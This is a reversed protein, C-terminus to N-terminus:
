AMNNAAEEVKKVFIDALEEIKKMDDESKIEVKDCLKEIKVIISQKTPVNATGKASQRLQRVERLLDVISGSNSVKTTQLIVTNKVQKTEAKLANKKGQEAAMSLSKDHPYVRSGKPLDIIEAGRDHVMAPGGQWNKTGKYLMPITPINLKFEKGGMKPVWKPIKVRLKNIGALAGNILGIVANFPAKVLGSLAQFAGGFINKVGDWAKKWNGTFVGTVFSIVGGLMRKVGGFVKNVTNLMSTLYGIAAGIGGAVAIKLSAGLTQKINNLYPKSSNWANSIHKSFKGFGSKAKSAFENVDFGCAKLVSKSWTGFKKAAASVKDWNKILLVLGVAIGAIAAVVIGAPGAMLPFVKGIGGFAKSIGSAAKTGKSLGSIAKGLRGVMSVTSGVATVMKGFVMLAPGITALKIAINVIHEVQEDSLSNIKDAFKQMKGTFKEVMPAMKDGFSIAISEATSKLVTLRGKLNDNAVNYMKKAAGSSNDIGKALKNFDKDSSNVVALLGSMGTKGALMAAYQAKASETLGSFAARAEQMVQRFPKMKGSSDTMSLGLDRMAASSEKTPKAMRTFWSNLSTGAQSAKIGSNAMLGLAVATDEASYKLAGAAPAAYKFSEGLMGVNTNSNNATKALVDVFHNTDKATMGFATLADTVIDSTSALDEGTAGALYMIGEIGNMMDKTKWGAMAMYSFADSAESASFKTKAGMEKAKQALTEMDKGTAGSISQVKSMSQEFDAATNVAAAGLGLIPTTVGKTLLAGSSEIKKGTKQIQSGARMIEKSHRSMNKMANSMPATFKDVFRLTADIVKNAM